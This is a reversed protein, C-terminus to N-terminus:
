DNKLVRECGAGISVGQRGGYRGIMSYCSLFKFLFKILKSIYNKTNGYLIYKTSFLKSNVWNEINKANEKPRPIALIQGLFAM